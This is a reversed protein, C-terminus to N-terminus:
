NWDMMFIIGREINNKACNNKINAIASESRDTMAVKKALTWKLTAIGGIGTGSGLELISKNKFKNANM